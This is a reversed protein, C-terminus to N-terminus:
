LWTWLFVSACMSLCVHVSGHRPVRLGWVGRHVCMPVNLFALLRGYLLLLLLAGSGHGGGAVRLCLQVRQVSCTPVGSPERWGAGEVLLM